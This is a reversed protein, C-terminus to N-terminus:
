GGCGDMLKIPTGDPGGSQQLVTETADCRLVAAGAALLSVALAVLSVLWKLRWPLYNLEVHGM